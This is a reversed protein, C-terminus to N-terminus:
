EGYYAKTLIEEMDAVMALRPNAPTCQDEFSMMALEKRGDLFTKEDIGQEKFSMKISVNVALEHCARAFSEVGEAPTACPLGLTRAIEQYKLDAKNYFNTANNVTNGPSHQFM